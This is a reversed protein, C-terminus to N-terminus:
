ANANHKALQKKYFSRFYGAIVFLGVFLIPLILKMKGNVFETNRINLVQSNNKIIKSLSVLSVRQQGQEAILNSKTQIVDNLQSNENYVVNSNSSAFTKLINDIQHIISDTQAIKIKVNNLFEKQILSYHESSNLYNLLPTVTKDDNTENSTVFTIQHYPYNKSTVNDSLVKKIDGDEAMLKILSFNEEKKDVFKYVDTIPEIKIKSFKKTDKIGVENKLFLTDKEKIKSGILDIKSYLYDVSGFNPQVIIKHEYIKTEKDMYFGLGVGLLCLIVIWIINRKLFLVARFIKTSIGDFFDGIKRSVQSLDIEQNDNNQSNISM